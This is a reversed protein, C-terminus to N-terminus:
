GTSRFNFMLLKGYRSTGLSISVTRGSKMEAPSAVTPRM